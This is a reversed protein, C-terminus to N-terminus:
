PVVLEEMLGVDVSLGGQALYQKRSIENWVVFAHITGDTDYYPTAHSHVFILDGAANFTSVRCEAYAVEGRWFQATLDDEYLLSSEITTDRYRLGLPSLGKHAHLAGPSHGVVVSGPNQVEAIVVPNRLLNDAVLNERRKGFLVDRLRRQMAVNPEDVGREWRSITAQNVGLQLALVEQKLGNRRRHGRILDRWNM